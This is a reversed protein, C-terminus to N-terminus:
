KRGERRAANMERATLSTRMARGIHKVLRFLRQESNISQRLATPKQGATERSAEDFLRIDNLEDAAERERDLQKLLKAKERAPLAHIEKLIATATM